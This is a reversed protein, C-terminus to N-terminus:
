DSYKILREEYIKKADSVIKKFRPDGKLNNYLPNNILNIYRYANQNKKLNEQMIKIADDKQNLLSFAEPSQVPMALAKNTEGRAAHLIKRWKKVRIARWTEINKYDPFVKELKILWQEAEDYKSLRLNLMCYFNLILPHDPFLEAAKNLYQAAEQYQGRYILSRITTAYSHFFLPDLDMARTCYKISQQYLGLKLYFYGSKYNLTASNPAKSIAKKQYEFAQDYKKRLLFVMAMNGHADASEPALNKIKEAYSVFMEFDSAERKFIFHNVYCWVLGSYADVYEPDIELAKELMQIATNFDSEHFTHLYKHNFFHLGKIYYEYAELNQTQDANFAKINEPTLNVQLAQAIAKSVEDQVEFVSELKRDYKKAWLHADDKVRILQATIRIRKKEKRVSGELINHVLLENGIDKISKETNKYKMVSTRSIVKLDRIHTLKTIIDETIGDCFYEQEPDASINTFPLVAISNKWHFESIKQPESIRGNISRKKQSKEKLIIYGAVALIMLVVIGAILISKVPRKSIKQTTPKSLSEDKLIPKKIRKLDVILDETNQYRETKNKSLAKQIITEMELPIGSRLSTVPTPQENMISYMIAQEYEGKFPLQGTIMEYLLVGLSWIDSRHDVKEGTAQEPSMYAITGLTTGEKTLKTVGRLKALGFDLIKVVNEDTVMINAAKIDRHVIDKKHAKNLGEAIQIAMDFAESLPLPHSTLKDKLTQGELYEMAIYTQNEFENIEYITVINTHSLAAAAKAEHIFRKKEEANLSIHAPLFKLAVIRDLKTDEAKYVVGMGGAGIEELIQYHSVTKNIM